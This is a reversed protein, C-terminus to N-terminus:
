VNFILNYLEAEGLCKVEPDIDNFHKELTSREILYRLGAKM